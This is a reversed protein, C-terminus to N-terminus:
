VQAAAPLSAEKPQSREDYGPVRGRLAADLPPESIALAVVIAQRPHIHERTELLMGVASLERLTAAQSPRQGGRGATARAPAQPRDAPPM